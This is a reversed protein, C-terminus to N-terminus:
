YSRLARRTNLDAFILRPCLRRHRAGVRNFPQPLVQALERGLCTRQQDTFEFAVQQAAIIDCAGIQDQLLQAPNNAVLAVAGGADVAGSAQEELREFRKQDLVAAIVFM